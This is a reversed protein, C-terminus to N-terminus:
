FSVKPAQKIAERVEMELYTADEKFGYSTAIFHQPFAQKYNNYFLVADNFAQRSFAVKNETHTLESSLQMMTADAKLDPYAEMVMNLRGLAGSLGSEAQGLSQLAQADMPNSQAAKLGSLALNRAQIVAELTEKEHKLYAKATEVLNPILDYRRRLQVEIQAFANGVRNKLLVLRNYIHTLYWGILIILGLLVYNGVGM